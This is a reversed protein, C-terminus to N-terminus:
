PTKVVLPPLAAEKVGKARPWLLAAEVFMWIELALTTLAMFILMFNPSDQAWWDNLQSLMAWAPMVLMFALPLIIFYIPLNRRWLWFSLVLFAMGGILQNTAGFMPWLILGGKGATAWSWDQGHVPLMAMLGALLIALGTAAYKNTLFGLPNTTIPVSDSAAKEFTASLEQIVYRQLRCATDLTTGAFSAVLVGMLAVSVASSLGLAKLFNAAGDVFAGVKAGLGAATGWTAYRSM